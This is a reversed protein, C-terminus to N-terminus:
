SPAEWRRSGPTRPASPSRVRGPLRVRSVLCHAVAAPAATSCPSRSLLQRPRPRPFETFVTGGPFVTTGVDTTGLAGATQIILDGEIVRIEGHFNPSDATLTLDNIGLKNLRGAPFSAVLPGFEMNGGTNVTLQVSHPTGNPSDLSLGGPFFLHGAAESSITQDQLLVVRQTITNDGFTEHRIGNTLAFSKGGITYDRGTFTILRFTKGTAFNNTTGKKSPGDPFVLDDGTDPIQNGKWNAATAWNGDAGGGDWEVVAARAPTPSWTTVLVAVALAALWPRSLEARLRDAWGGGAEASVDERGALDRGLLRRALVSVTAARRSLSSTESTMTSTDDSADNM